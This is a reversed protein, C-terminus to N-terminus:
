FINYRYIPMETESGNAFIQTIKICLEQPSTM